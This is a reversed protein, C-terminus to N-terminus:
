AQTPKSDIQEPDEVPIGMARMMAKIEDESPEETQKGKSAKKKTKDAGIMMMLSAAEDGKSTDINHNAAM